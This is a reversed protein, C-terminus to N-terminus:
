SHCQHCFNRSTGDGRANLWKTGTHGERGDVEQVTHHCRSEVCTVNAGRTDPGVTRDHCQACPVAHRSRLAFLRDPHKDGTGAPHCQLCFNPVDARYTYLAGMASRLGDHVDFLHADQPHCQICNTNAGQRSPVGTSLDHCGLCAMKTHAGQDIVFTPNHLGELAPKWSVQVHCNVCATTFVQPTDLHVPATTGTYETSHCMYCDQGALERVGDPHSQFCAALVCAIVPTCRTLATTEM